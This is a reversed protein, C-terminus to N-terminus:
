FAALNSVRKHDQIFAFTMQSAISLYVKLRVIKVAFKIPMIAQIAESIILGKNNAHNLATHAQILTLTWIILVHHM